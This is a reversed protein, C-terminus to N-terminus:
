AASGSHQNISGQSSPRAKNRAKPIQLVGNLIGPDPSVGDKTISDGLFTVEQVSFINDPNVTIGGRQAAELAKQLREDYEKRTSFWVLVDDIYVRVGDPGEFSQTM